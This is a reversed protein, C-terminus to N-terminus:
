NTFASNREILQAHLVLRYEGDRHNARTLFGSVRVPEGAVLAQCISALSDGSAIVGIQCQVQRELGAEHQVSQHVLTFRTIPIGSPTHRTQPAQKVVGALVLRNDQLM